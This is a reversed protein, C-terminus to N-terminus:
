GMHLVTPAQTGGSANFNHMDLQVWEQAPTAGQSPQVEFVVYLKQNISDYAAGTIRGDMADLQHSTGLQSAAYNSNGFDITGLSVNLPTTLTVGSPTPTSKFTSLGNYTYSILYEGGGPIAAPQYSSDSYSTASVRTSTSGPSYLGDNYVS